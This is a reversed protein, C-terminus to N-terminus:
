WFFPSRLAELLGARRTPVLDDNNSGGDGRAALGLRMAEHGGAPQARYTRFLSDWWPFVMGFNSNGEDMRVSHHVRHMDPTVVWRRLARDLRLPLGLNAHCFLTHLLQILAYAMLSLLPLGLAASAMLTLAMLALVELPHHRVSSTVDLSEDAHHVQHLRWLLPVVHSLRHICYQILDVLLVGLLVKLTDPLTTAALGGWGVRAGLRVAAQQAPDALWLLLLAGSGYLGLNVFWRAGRGPIVVRRPWRQEVFALASGVLLLLAYQAWDFHELFFAM